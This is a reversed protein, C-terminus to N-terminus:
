LFAQLMEKMRASAPNFRLGERLTERAGGGDGSRYLAVALNLRAGELGPNRSLAARWLPIAKDMHGESAYCAGLNVAAAVPAPDLAVARAYLTCAKTQQGARDTLQALQTVVKADEPVHELLAVARQGWTRNNDRLAIAAYALGLERPSPEGGGFLKLKANAPVEEVPLPRRPISHNTLTAHQVTVASAKPMHCAICDDSTRNRATCAQTTHCELCKQRYDIARHPSHCNTCTLKGGSALACKSRALQEFHGNVSAERGLGDWVFVAKGITVVGPLHCQACAADRVPGLKAQKAIHPGAPGHCRECSVGAESFAPQDYGNVTGERWRVGTAHCGLCSPEIERSFETNEFGPSLDWRGTASYYSMPSQFLFGDVATVYSRGISGAGIFYDLRRGPLRAGFEVTGSTRAMPTQRYQAYIEPHCKACQRSETASAFQTLLLLAGIGPACLRRGTARAFEM